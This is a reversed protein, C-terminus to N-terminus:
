ISRSFVPTNSDFSFDAVNPIKMGHARPGRSLCFQEFFGARLDHAYNLNFHIPVRNSSYRNVYGELELLRTRQHLAADLRFTLRNKVISKIRTQFSDKM